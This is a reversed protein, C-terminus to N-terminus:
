PMNPTTGGALLLGGDWEAIVGARGRQVIAQLRTDVLPVIAEPDLWRVNDILVHLERCPDVPRSDVAVVYGADNGMRRARALADGTLGIARQYRGLGVLREALDRAASDGADYVIRRTLTAHGRPPPQAIQCDPLMQWWFPGAAGRAEGRVGDEALAQRAEDSLPSVRGRPTLLVFTRQWPMPVSQFRSLTAAYDLAAPDRTLLLDVVDDLLDRPDGPAVIFRVPSLGDRELTIVSHAAAPADNNSVIRSARTGLPWRSDAVYRAVALDTHALALPADAYRRRLTIALTRDDLVVLSEILRNVRWHLESSADDRRWAARVDASSVPVGDSFRAGERLTVVWARGDADLRWSVALGPVARGNCDIAVLTEYVQRFLLRESDNSPTPANAANVPETLGVTAVPEGSEAILPCNLAVPAVAEPTAPEPAATEPDATEQPVPVARPPLRSGCAATLLHLCVVFALAAFRRDMLM